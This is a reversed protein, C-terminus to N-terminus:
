GLRFRAAALQDNALADRVAQQGMRGATIAVVSLFWMTEGRARALFLRALAESVPDRRACCTCGAPHRQSFAPLDFRGVPIGEPVLVDGEVLLATEATAEAMSGFRVPVRADVFLTM